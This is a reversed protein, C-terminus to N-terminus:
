MRATHINSAPNDLLSAVRRALDADDTPTLEGTGPAVLYRGRPTDFWTVVTSGRRGDDAGIQGGALRRDAAPAPLSGPTGAPFVGLIEGALAGPDTATLWLEGGALVALVASRGAAAALARVPYGIHGVADFAVEHRALLDLLSELRADLQRGRALGRSAFERYVEATLRAREAFTRGTSPVRLPYPVAPLGLAGWLLDFEHTSVM